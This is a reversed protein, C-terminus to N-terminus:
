LVINLDPLDFHNLAGRILVSHIDRTCYLQDAILEEYSTLGDKFEIKNLRSVLPAALRPYIGHLGAGYLNIEGISLGHWQEIMEVARIVDYARLAALHDGLWWLDTSLKQMVGHFRDPPEPNLPRAMIAGAGSVDVVFVANNSNAITTHIWELHQSIQTTGGDWIALTVRMNEASASNGHILVGHNLLKSQSWWYAFQLYLEEFAVTPFYRPNLPCEDRGFFVTERLWTLAHGPSEQEAAERQKRVEPLRRLNAVHIFEADEFEAAVQGAKTCALTEPSLVSGVPIQPCQRNLLHHNFFSAAARAMGDTYDHQADEEYLHVTLPMNALLLTRQAKEVSERTGEIPFSDSLVSLVLVPRPAMALLCDAHDFGNASFGFWIQEADQALGTLQYTPRSTVFCGPAAAAIRPEAMMLMCTQMGGGSAGTVGIRAPDVEPRSVLYDIARISDHVFYRALGDGLPICQTGVYEHAFTADFNGSDLLAGNNHGLREGQGFPDQVLVILGSRALTQAVLQHTADQKARPSHGCLLLVAASPGNLGHPLYLNATVYHHPRAQFIIKEISYDDGDEHGTSVAELSTSDPPLGGCSALFTQSVTQQYDQLASRSDIRSRAEDGKLFAANSKAYIHQRLQDHVDHCYAVVSCHDLNEATVQQM